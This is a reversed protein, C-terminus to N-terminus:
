PLVEYGLDQLLFPTDDPAKEEYEFAERELQQVSLAEKTYTWFAALLHASSGDGMDAAHNSIRRVYDYCDVVTKHTEVHITDTSEDCYNNEEDTGERYTHIKAVTTIENYSM